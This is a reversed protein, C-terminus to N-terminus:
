ISRQENKYKEKNQLEWLKAYTIFMSFSQYMSEIFGVTGAKWGQQKIYSNLFTTAMVRFFRWPVMHPHHANFRLNAEIESWEITKSLMAALDKHTYHLLFGDLIGIKGAVLPTEHVQGKWGKLSDKLFLRELNEFGPWEHNGLYYNKRKLSFGIFEQNDLSIHNLISNKLEKSVIEDADVYLLWKGHALKIGYNRLESFNESEFPFVKGGAKEARHVTNDVSGNDILIVEDAFSVSEMCREITKEENKTLIIVSLRM